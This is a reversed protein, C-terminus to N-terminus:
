RSYDHYVDVFYKEKPFQKVLKGFTGYEKNYENMAEYAENHSATELICEITSGTEKERVDVCFIM